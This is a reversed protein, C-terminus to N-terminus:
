KFRRKGYGRVKESNIIQEVKLISKWDNKELDNEIELCDDLVTIVIPLGKNAKTMRNMHVSQYTKYTM